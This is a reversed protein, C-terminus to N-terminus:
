GLAIGVCGMDWGMGRGMRNGMGSRDGDLGLM